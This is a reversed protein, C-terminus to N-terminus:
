TSSSGHDPRRHQRHLGDRDVVKLTPVDAIAQEIRGMVEDLDSGPESKGFVMFDQPQQQDALFTARSITYYGLLNEEDSIAEVELDRTKGM